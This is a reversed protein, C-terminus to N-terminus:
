ITEDLLEELRYYGSCACDIMLNTKMLQNHMGSLYILRDDIIYFPIELAYSIGCIIATGLFMEPGNSIVFVKESKLFNELDEMCADISFDWQRKSVIYSKKNSFFRYYIYSNGIEVFTKASDRKIGRIIKDLTSTKKSFIEEIVALMIRELMDERNEKLSNCFTDFNIDPFYNIWKIDLMKLLNDPLTSDLETKYFPSYSIFDSNILIVKKGLTIAYGIEFGVGEDFEPGDLFGILLDSNIEEIDIRFIEEKWNQKNIEEERSDRYPMYVSCSFNEKLKQELLCARIKDDINYLRTLLYIRFSQPM